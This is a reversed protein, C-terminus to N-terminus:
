PNASKFLDEMIQFSVPDRKKLTKPKAVYFGFVEAQFEKPHVGSYQTIGSWFGPKKKLENYRNTLATATKSILPNNSEFISHSVEHAVAQAFEPNKGAVMVHGSSIEYVGNIQKGTQPNRVFRSDEVEISNYTSKGNKDTLLSKPIKSIIQDATAKQAETGSGKINSQKAEIKSSSKGKSGKVIDKIKYKGPELREGGAGYRHGHVKQTAHGPHRQIYALTDIATQYDM